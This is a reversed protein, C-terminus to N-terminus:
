AEAVEVTGPSVVGLVVVDAGTPLERQATVAQYEMLRNQVKVHVKGAGGRQGPITLYVKAPAGVAREIRVSGDSQLKALTQMVWAVTVMAAGGAAVAIALPLLPGQTVRASAAVGALGFFLLAAVITRFTLLKFFWSGEEHHGPQQHFHGTEHQTDGPDDAHDGGLDHHGGLGILALVFQCLMLTGGLIACILYVTEM